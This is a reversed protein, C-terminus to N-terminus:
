YTLGTYHTHQFLLTGPDQNIGFVQEYHFCELRLCEQSDPSPFLEVKRTTLYREYIFMRDLLLNQVGKASLYLNRQQVASIYENWLHQHSRNPINIVDY